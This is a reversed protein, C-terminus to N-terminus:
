HWTISGIDRSLDVNYPTLPLCLVFLASIKSNTGVTKAVMATKRQLHEVPSKRVHTQQIILEGIRITDDKLKTLWIVLTLIKLSGEKVYIRRQSFCVYMLQFHTPSKEPVSHSAACIICILWYMFHLQRSNDASYYIWLPDMQYHLRIM